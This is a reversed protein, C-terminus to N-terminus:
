YSYIGPKLKCEPHEESHVKELRDISSRKDEPNEPWYMGSGVWGCKCSGALYNPDPSGFSEPESEFMDDLYEKLTYAM